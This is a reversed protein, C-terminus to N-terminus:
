IGVMAVFGSLQKVREIWALVHSYPKIDIKGGAALAIYPFIAIDAITPHEFELWNRTSLHQDLQNLIFGSKQTALEININTAGFLYYLRANETGQRVEGAATSLWRVVQALAVADLPLWRDGGYKRALYVLISQADALTVDGDILVPVQGFPNRALHQEGKHEGQMLDVKIWEYELHLLSLLLKVKYSNGSLEHGYLKIM